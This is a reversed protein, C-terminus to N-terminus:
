WMSLETELVGTRSRERDTQAAVDTHLMVYYAVGLLACLIAGVGIKGAIPLRGLSLAM